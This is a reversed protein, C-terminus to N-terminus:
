EFNKSSGAFHEPCILKFHKVVTEEDFKEHFEELTMTSESRLMESM